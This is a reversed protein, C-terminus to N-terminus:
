LGLAELIEPYNAYVRRAAEFIEEKTTTSRYPIEIRWANTFVQHEARTLVISSMEKPNVGLINAFRKEILHHAHLGTGAIQTRLARYSQIGYRSAYYFANLGRSSIYLAGTIVAQRYVWYEFGDIAAVVVWYCLPCEGTADYYKISNGNAYM